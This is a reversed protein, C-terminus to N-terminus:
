TSALDRRGLGVLGTVVAAAALAVMVTLPLAAVSELPAQPTHDLPSLQRAWSPLDFSDGLMTVLAMYGLLTWALASAARPLLGIGAVAVAVALWAAPLYVAAAALSRGVQGPEDISLGYTLGLGLAGAALVVASGGLAVAVYSGLWSQRSTRTALVPEARGSTEEARARLAASLGSAAALLTVVALTLAVYSDVVDGAGGPLYDAIEPNDAVYQEISKGVSGFMVGLTFVGLSWGLLSGRQLRWALGLPSSFSRPATAPGPRSPVVGAAFDRRNLTARAAGVLVASVALSLAVPWWRNEVYPLTRQGWGMPSLWSLTGNGADGAARLAFSLGLMGAVSGYVARGNEFVQAALAALGAFVLGFAGLAAGLLLSGGAPLGSATALVAVVVAVAVDAILALVLAATLLAHRAVKASRLLEARGTEEDARTNRGVLFMNMLAVVIGAYAFIEFVVEGGITALLEEPGSMAIIASNGASTTRIKALAEATGYLRQSQVAQVYVLLAAVAVWIPLARRERRLLFRVMPAVGSM